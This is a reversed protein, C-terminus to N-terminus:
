ATFPLRSQEDDNATAAKAHKAAATRRKRSAQRDTLDIEVVQGSDSVEEDSRKQDIDIITSPPPWSIPGGLYEELMVRPVRVARGIRMAPIGYEGDTRIWRQAQEYAASKGLRLIRGAEPVTLVDPPREAAVEGAPEITLTEVFVM